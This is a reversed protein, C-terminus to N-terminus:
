WLVVCTVLVVLECRSCWGICMPLAEDVIRRCLEQEDWQERGRVQEEWGGAATGALKWRHERASAVGEQGAPGTGPGRDTRDSPWCQPTHERM